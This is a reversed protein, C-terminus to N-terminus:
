HPWAETLVKAKGDKWMVELSPTAPKGAAFLEYVISGDTQKSEIVRVPKAKGAAAIVPAPATNWAIDRQIEVVQWGQPTQLLDLEIESGDPLTGEVDYYRRGEREKLEAEVIKMQPMAKKVAAAVDAPAQALAPSAALTLLLAILPARM